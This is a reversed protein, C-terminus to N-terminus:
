KGEGKNRLGNRWDAAAMPKKGAPQVSVLHLTSGDKCSIPTSGKTEVLSTELVKLEQGEVMLTVGPWPVLARVRRDIDEATMASADAKGDERSLKGCFTAQADDQAAERLPNKLVDPLLHCAVNMLRERLNVSTERPGIEVAEEAVVPGADLALVMRQVSIGSRTDGALIAHEIPSAGRWHPLLSAHVNLPAVTPLDLVHQKLLEGYAVTVLFDPRGIGERELHPLLEDNIKRPQFVNLGKKLAAEKVAPATLVQKRGVPQDPQTIVLPIAFAPDEALTELVAAAFRPTGLFFLSIPSPM